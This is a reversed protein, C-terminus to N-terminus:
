VKRFGVPKGENIGVKTFERYAERVRRGKEEGKEKRSERAEM